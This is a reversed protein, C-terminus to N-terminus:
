VIKLKSFLIRYVSVLDFQLRRLELAELGLIKLREGYDVHCMNPLRKTFRKQVSEVLKIDKRIVHPSWVNSAYELVPRVYVTFARVM